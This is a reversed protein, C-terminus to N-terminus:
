PGDLQDLREVARGALGMLYRHMMDRPAAGDIEAPLVALEDAVACSIAVFLIAIALVTRSM